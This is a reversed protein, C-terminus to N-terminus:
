FDDEPMLTHFISGLNQRWPFSQYLSSSHSMRAAERLATGEGFQVTHVKSGCKSVLPRLSALRGSSASRASNSFPLFVPISIRSPSCPVSSSGALPWHFLPTPHFASIIPFKFKRINVPFTVASYNPTKYTSFISTHYTYLAATVFFFWLNWTVFYCM